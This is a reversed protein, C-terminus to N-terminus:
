SSVRDLCGLVESSKEVCSEFAYSIENGIGSTKSRCTSRQGVEGRCNSFTSLSDFTLGAWWVSALCILSGV